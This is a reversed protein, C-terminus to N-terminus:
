FLYLFAWFIYHQTTKYQKFKALSFSGKGANGERHPEQTQGSFFYTHSKSLSVSATASVWHFETHFTLHWAAWAHDQQSVRYGYPWVWLLELKPLLTDEKLKALDKDAGTIIYPRIDNVFKKNVM